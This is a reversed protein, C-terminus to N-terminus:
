WIKGEEECSGQQHFYHSPGQPRDRCVHFMHVNSWEQLVQKVAEWATQVCLGGPEEGRQDSSPAWPRWEPLTAGSSCCLVLGHVRHLVQSSQAKCPLLWLSGRWSKFACYSGWTSRWCTIDPRNDATAQHPFLGQLPPVSLGWPDELVRRYLGLLLLTRLPPLCPQQVWGSLHLVSSARVDPRNHHPMRM